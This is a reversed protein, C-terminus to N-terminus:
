QKIVKESINNGESTKVVISYVGSSWTTTPIIITSSDHNNLGFVQKGSMDIVSIERIIDNCNVNLEDVVPSPFVVISKPSNVFINEELSSGDYNMGVLSTVNSNPALFQKFHQTADGGKDWHYWLRGYDDKGKLNYCRSSGGTLTGIILGNQNFIPSGSSGGHTVSSNYQVKWHADKGGTVGYDTTTHISPSASYTTIKKVDGNPHHLIAGSEPIAGSADWGNYYPQWLDPVNTNLKVLAGDSGGSLPILAILKAGSISNSKTTNSSTVLSNDCNIKEFNFIYNTTSFNTLVDDKTFCHDASLIYPTKDKETNNILAGSCVYTDDGFKMTIKVVGRKQIQWDTSCSIDVMCSPDYKDTDAYLTPINYLYTVDDIKIRPIENSTKSVVYELTLQDGYVVETVYEKTTPNTNHTFAGIIQENDQSYVFLKGGEPIYFDNYYLMLGEANPAEITYRIIKDGNNLESIEGDRYLDIEVPIGTGIRQPYGIQPIQEDEKKLDEINQLPTLKKVVISRKLSNNEEYKFSPPIGGESIQAFISSNVFLTIAILFM